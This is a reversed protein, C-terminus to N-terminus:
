QMLREHDSREAMLAHVVQSIGNAEAGNTMGFLVGIFRAARFGICVSKSGSESALGSNKPMVAISLAIQDTDADPCWATGVDLASGTPSNAAM